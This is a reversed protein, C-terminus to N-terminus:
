ARPRMGVVASVGALLSRSANVVRKLGERTAEARVESARKQIAIHDLPDFDLSNVAKERDQMVSVYHRWRPPVAGIRCNPIASEAYTQWGSVARIM